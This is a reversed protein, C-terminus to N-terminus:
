NMANLEETDEEPIDKDGFGWVADKHIHQDSLFHSGDGCKAARRAVMEPSM